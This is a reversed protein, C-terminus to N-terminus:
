ATVKVLADYVQAAFQDLAEILPFHGGDHEHLEIPPALPAWNEANALAVLARTRAVACVNDHAGHFVHIPVTVKRMDKSTQQTLPNLVPTINFRVNNMLADTRCLEHQKSAADHWMAYEDSDVAPMGEKMVMTAMVAHAGAKDPNYLMGLFNKFMAEMEENNDIYYRTPKGNADMRTVHYGSFNISDMLFASKLFDPHDCALQAVVGGATSWGMVVPKEISLAKCFEVIDNAWDSHSTCRNKYTSDGYGRLDVSVIKVNAFKEHLALPAFSRSDFMNGHLCVLTKEGNANFVRYAYEEGNPLSVKEVKTKEILEKQAEWNKSM